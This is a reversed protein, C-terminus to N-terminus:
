LGAFMLAFVKADAVMDSVLTYENPQHATNQWTNWVAAPLGQQRFFAAVTGGGVGCPRAKVGRVQEIAKSLVLVVPAQPDTGPPAQLYQVAEINVEVGEEAAIRAQRTAQLVANTIEYELLTPAALRVLGSVHDRIVSQAGAQAEDPFFAQLIVSADVIM